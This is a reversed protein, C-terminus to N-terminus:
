LELEVHVSTEDYEFETIVFDAGSSRFHVIWNKFESGAFECNLAGTRADLRRLRPVVIESFAARIQFKDDESIEKGASARNRVKPM